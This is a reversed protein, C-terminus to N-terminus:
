VLMGVEKAAGWEERVAERRLTEVGQFDPDNCLGAAEEAAGWEERVAERRLTEVGQSARPNAGGVPTPSAWVVGPRAFASCGAQRGPPAGSIGQFPDHDAGLGV